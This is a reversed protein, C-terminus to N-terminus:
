KILFKIFTKRNNFSLIVFYLIGLASINLIFYILYKNITGFNNELFFYFLFLLLIFFFLSKFFKWKMPFVKQAFYFELVILIIQGFLISWAVGLFFDKSIFFYFFFITSIFCILNSFLNLESRKALKIGINTINGLGYVIYALSLPFILVKAGLYEKSSLFIILNESWFCVSFLIILMFFIFTKAILNFKSIINKQKYTKYAFPGWSLQFSQIFFFMILAIKGAIAYIGLHYESFYNLIVSKEIFILLSTLISIFGLPIGYKFIKKLYYIKKPFIIWKKINAFLYFSLILNSIVYCYFINLINFNGYFKIYFIALLSLFSNGIIGTIFLKKKFDWRLINICFNFFIILFILLSVVIGITQDYLNIKYYLSILDLIYINIPFFIIALILQFIFSESILNQRQNFSNYNYFLRAIAQDQGFVLIMVILNSLILYFDFIGFEEVTLEKSVLFILALSLVKQIASGLGYTFTDSILNLIGLKNIKKPIM